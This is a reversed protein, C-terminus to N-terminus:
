AVETIDLWPAKMGTRTTRTRAVALGNWTTVGDGVKFKNTGREIGIEGQLLIPNNSIWNAVTDNRTIIRANLANTAM